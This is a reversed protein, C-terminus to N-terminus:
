RRRRLLALGGLALLGLTAPEPVPTVQLTVDDYRSDFFIAGLGGTGFENNGKVSHLRVEVDTNIVYQGSHQWLTWTDRNTNNSSMGDFKLDSDIWLEIHAEQVWNWNEGSWWSAWAKSWGSVDVDYLNGPAPDLQALTFNQFYYNDYPASSGTGDSGGVAWDGGDDPATAHDNELRADPAGGVKAWAGPPAMNLGGDSVNPNNGILLSAYLPAATVCLVLMGVFWRKMRM